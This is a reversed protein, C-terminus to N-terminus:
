KAKLEDIKNKASAFAEDITDGDSIFLTNDSGYKDLKIYWTAKRKSVYYGVEFGDESVFKNELYDPDQSIDQEVERKLTKIAKLVEILDSYEISATSNNYKGEKSIQYFFAVSTGSIIKRVRTEAVGFSTKLNPLKTDNFKIITGTKSSFVDIKTRLTESEKKVNQCFSSIVFSTLTFFLFLYKFM